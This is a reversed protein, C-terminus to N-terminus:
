PRGKGLASLPWSQERRSAFDVKFLRNEACFVAGDNTCSFDGYYSYLAPDLLTVSHHPLDLYWLDVRHEDYCSTTAFLMKRADPSLVARVRCWWLPMVAGPNDSLSGMTETTNAALHWCLLTIRREHPQQQALMVADRGIFVLPLVERRYSQEIHRQERYDNCCLTVM